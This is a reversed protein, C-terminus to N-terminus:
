SAQDAGPAIRFPVNSPVLLRAAVKSASVLEANPRDNSAIRLKSDAPVLGISTQREYVRQMALDIPCDVFWLDDFVVQMQVWPEDSLFLYNGEVLVVLHQRKDIVIDDPIPDGVAHDFSPLSAHGHQKIQQVAAVFAAADFTWPAGRRAHAEKPDEMQDLQRKYYHFGDMPAVTAVRSLGQQQAKVTIGKAVQQALTTKGSGPSGAIGIVFPLQKEPLQLASSLAKNALQDIIDEYTNGAGVATSGSGARVLAEAGAQQLEGATERNVTAYVGLSSLSCLYEAELKKCHSKQQLLLDLEQVAIQLEQVLQRLLAMLM